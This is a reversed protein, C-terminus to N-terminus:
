SQSRGDLQLSGPEDRQKKVLWLLGFHLPPLETCLCVGREKQRESARLWNQRSLGVCGRNGCWSPVSETRNFKAGCLIPSAKLLLDSRPPPPVSSENLFCQKNINKHINAWHFLSHPLSLHQRAAGLALVSVSTVATVSTIFGSGKIFHRIIISSKLFNFTFWASAAAEQM